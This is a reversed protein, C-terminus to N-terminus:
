SRAATPSGDRSAARRLEELESRHIRIYDDAAAGGDPYFQRAWERLATFGAYEKRSLAPPDSYRRDRICM